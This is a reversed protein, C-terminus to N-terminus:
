RNLHLLIPVKWNNIKLVFRLEKGVTLNSEFFVGLQNWNVEM